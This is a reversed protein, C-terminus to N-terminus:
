GETDELCEPELDAIPADKDDLLEILQEIATEIEPRSWGGITLALAEPTVLQDLRM